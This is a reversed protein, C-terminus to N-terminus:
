YEIMREAPQKEFYEKVRGISEEVSFANIM